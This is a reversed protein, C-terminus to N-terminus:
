EDDIDVLVRHMVGHDFLDVLDALDHADFRDGFIGRGLVDNVAQFIDTNIM